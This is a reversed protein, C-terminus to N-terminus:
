SIKCTTAEGKYRIGYKGSTPVRLDLIKMGRYPTPTTKLSPANCLSRNNFFYRDGNNKKHQSSEHRVSKARRSMHEERDKWKDEEVQRAYVMHRSIDM